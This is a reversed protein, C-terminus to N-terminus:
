VNETQKIKGQENGSHTSSQHADKMLAECVNKSDVYAEFNVKDPERIEICVIRVFHNHNLVFEGGWQLFITILINCLNQEIDLKLNLSAM